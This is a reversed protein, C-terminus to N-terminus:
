YYDILLPKGTPYPRSPHRKRQEKGQDPSMKRKLPLSNETEESKPPQYPPRAWWPWIAELPPIWGPPNVIRPIEGLVYFPTYHFLTVSLSPICNQFNSVPSRVNSQEVSLLIM